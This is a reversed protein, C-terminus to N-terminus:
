LLLRFRFMYLRPNLASPRPNLDRRRWWFGFALRERNAKKIAQKQTSASTRAYEQPRGSVWGGLGRKLM